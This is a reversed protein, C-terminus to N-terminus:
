GDLRGNDYAAFFGNASHDIDWNTSISQSHLKIKAGSKDYGYNQTTAGKFGMFLNNFSRNEQIVYVVHQIVGGSASHASRASRAHREASAATSGFPGTVDRAGCGTSALLALLAGGLLAFRM